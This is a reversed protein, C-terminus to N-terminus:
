KWLPNKPEKSAGHDSLDQISRNLLSVCVGNESEKPNLFGIKSKRLSVCGQFYQFSKRETLTSSTHPFTRKSDTQIVKNFNIKSTPIVWNCLNCRTCLAAARRINSSLLYQWTVGSRFDNCQSGTLYLIM